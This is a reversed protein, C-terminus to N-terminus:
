LEPKRRNEKKQKLSSKDKRKKIKASLTPATAIRKKVPTFIKKLYLTFKRIVEEKNQLQTRYRDCQMKLEGEKTILKSKRFILEKEEPKLVQSDNVSFSLIVKTEVKNVNQGGKGGAHATAFKLERQVMQKIKLDTLV